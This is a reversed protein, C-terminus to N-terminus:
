LSQLCAATNTILYLMNLICSLKIKNVFLTIAQMPEHAAPQM